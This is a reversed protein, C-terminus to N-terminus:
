HTTEMDTYGFFFGRLNRFQKGQDIFMQRLFLVNVLVRYIQFRSRTKQTLSGTFPQEDLNHV